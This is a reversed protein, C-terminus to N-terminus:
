LVKLDVIDIEEQKVIDLVNGTVIGAELVVAQEVPQQLLLGCPADLVQAEREVAAIVVQGGEHVEVVPIEHLDLEVIDVPLLHGTAPARARASGTRFEEIVIQNALTNRYEDHLRDLATRQGADAIADRADHALAM